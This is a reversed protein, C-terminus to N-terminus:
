MRTTIVGLTVSNHERYSEQHSHTLSQTVDQHYHCRSNGFQTGQSTRATPSPVIKTGSRITNATLYPSPSFVYDLM